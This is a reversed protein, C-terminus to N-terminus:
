RFGDSSRTNNTKVSIWTSLNNKYSFKYILSDFALNVCSNWIFCLLNQTRSGQTSVEENEEATLCVEVSFHSSNQEQALFCVRRPLVNKEPEQPAVGTHAVWSRELIYAKYLYTNWCLYIHWFLGGGVGCQLIVLTIQKCNINSAFSFKETILKYCM